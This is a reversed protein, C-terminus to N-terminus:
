LLTILEDLLMALQEPAFVQPDHPVALERYPWGEQRARAAMPAIPDDGAENGFDTRTCRVFARPLKEVAGNITLPDILTAAPHDNLRALYSRRVGDDISGPPILTEILDEPIPVRWQDGHEALGRSVIVGFREPLLDLACQGDLPVLADIYILARVRQGLRDAAGTVPMGGYSAGCLVVRDIPEAEVADVVDDVHTALGIRENNREHAREGLGTLSPAITQHGLAHLRATVESWEWGGGWAGHVIM